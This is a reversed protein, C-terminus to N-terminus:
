DVTKESQGPAFGIRVGDSDELDVSERTERPGESSCDGVCHQTADTLQKWLHEACFVDRAPPTARVEGDPHVAAALFVRCDLEPLDACFDGLQIKQGRVTPPNM